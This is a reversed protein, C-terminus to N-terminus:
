TERARWYNGRERDWTNGEGHVESKIDKHLIGKNGKGCHEDHTLEALPSDVRQGIHHLEIPKGDSGLPALGREVRERNTRGKEDVQDWDIDLRILCKRGGVESEVLGANKYIRYEEMSHIADIIKDSWGTEEKIQQREEDTLEKCEDQVEDGEANENEQLASEMDANLHEPSLNKFAGLKDEIADRVGGGGCDDLRKEPFEDIRNVGKKIAEAAAGGNEALAAAMESLAM